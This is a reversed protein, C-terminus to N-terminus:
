RVTTGNPPGAHVQYREAFSVIRTLERMFARRNLIPLLADLDALEELELLRRRNNDLERRLNDVEAMLSMIAERVKPTLEAEPIGLVAGSDSVQRVSGAAPSTSASRNAKTTTGVRGVPRSNDIKMACCAKGGYLGEM